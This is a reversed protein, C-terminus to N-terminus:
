FEFMTYFEVRVANGHGDDLYSTEWFSVELGAKLGGGFDYKSAVYMVWNRTRRTHPSTTLLDGDSPNDLSAGLALTLADFKFEFESWGGWTAIEDAGFSQGIGGRVDALGKGYFIEGRLSVMDFLPMVLDGGLAWSTFTSDGAFSTTDSQSRGWYGWAGGALMKGDVWSPTSVGFRTQFHPHGTDSGDKQGNSDVDAADVAGQQGAALKWQFSTEKPEGGDWILQAMPRRDGLNGANWLLTDANVSPMLPSIVDWDQGLRFALAGFDITAYALRIRPTQRSEDSPGTTSKVPTNAFDMELKGSVDAQGIKGGNVDFGFRTLRVNIGFEDDNDIATAQTANQEHNVYQINTQDNFRASSYQLGTRFFGYFKIPNGSRTLQKWAVGDEVRAALANVEREVGAEVEEARRADAVAGLKTELESNREESRRLRDLIEQNQRELDRLRQEASPDQAFAPAVCLALAAWRVHHNTM